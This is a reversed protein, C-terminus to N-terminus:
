WRMATGRARPEARELACPIPGAGGQGVPVVRTGFMELQLVVYGPSQFIRVGNNYPKPLMM